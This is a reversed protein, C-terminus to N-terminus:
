KKKLELLSIIVGILLLFFVLTAIRNVTLIHNIFIFLPIQVLCLYATQYARSAPIKSSMMIYWLLVGIFVIFNSHVSLPVYLYILITYIGFVGRLKPFLYFILPIFCISVYLLSYPDWVTEKLKALAFSKLVNRDRFLTSKKFVYVTAQSHYGGRVGIANDEQGDPSDIKYEYSKGESQEIPLFGFPYLLGDTFRDVAYENTVIWDQTGAPRLQFRIHTTNLRNFTNIRLKVMALNNYTATFRGTINRGVVIPALSQRSVINAEHYTLLSTIHSEDLLIFSLVIGLVALITIHALFLIKTKMYIEKEKFLYNSLLDGFGYPEFHKVVFSPIKIFKAM